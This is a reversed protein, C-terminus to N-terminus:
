GRSDPFEVFIGVGEIRDVRGVCAVGLNGVVEIPRNEDHRDAIRAAAIRKDEIPPMLDSGIKVRALAM